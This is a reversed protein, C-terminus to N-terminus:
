KLFGEYQKVMLHVKIQNMTDLAVGVMIILATSGLGALTSIGTLSTASGAVLTIIALFVAGIFIIRNLIVALYDGTPKGPKIGPIANGYKKLSNAIEKPQMSPVLSSYFYSFFIILGFQIAMFWPSGPAFQVKYWQIAELVWGTPHTSLILGVLTQPFSLLAFTFIIPMVGAPNIKFPIFSTGAGYHKSGVSRKAQVIFVKRTAEQLIIIAVMMAIYIALLIVLAMSRQPDGEVLQATQTAYFPLGALIGVFILISSGNGIGKETILESIWLTFLSGAILATIALVYFITPNVGMQLVNPNAAFLKVVIFAQVFALGVSLYRTIQALQRRGSEGEDKQMEELRPVVATLLQIVISATIYPGIGLAVVSLSTLAGGSFLDLFGLVANNKALLALGQPNVGWVPIQACLRYIAVAGLTFFIKQKLDTVQRGTEADKQFLPSLFGFPSSSKL